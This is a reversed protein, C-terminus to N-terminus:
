SPLKLHFIISALRAVTYGLTVSANVLANLQGTTASYGYTVMNGAGASPTITGPRGGSNYGVTLIAGDPRIVETLQKGLNHACINQM